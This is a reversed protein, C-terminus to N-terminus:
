IIYRDDNLGMLPNNGALGPLNIHDKLIMFDGEIYDQNLGGAANTIILNHIGMLQMMYVPMTCQFWDIILEIIM